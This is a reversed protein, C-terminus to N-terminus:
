YIIKQEVATTGDLAIHDYVSLGYQTGKKIICYEENKYLIEIRRFVAYGKNVNFVGELSQKKSIEFEEKTKDSRIKEGPEFLRGDIYGYEDDSCYIDAPVFVYDPEGNKKYTVKILGNSGSDGGVTFYDLPVQYFDKKVISSVPIKLGKASNVAIEVNIYRQNLYRIMFKNLDLKAFYDTGKKFVSISATTTLGDDSFTISVTDKDTLKEYHEKDLLLLINWNDSKIIKYVPSGKEILDMTRLQTKKYDETKFNDATAADISLNELDDVSYTIIGSSKSKMVKLASGTGKEELVTQLKALMNDNVIELVANQMDYKFNYVTQYKSDQYNRQFNAIDKKFKMTDESSLEVVDESNGILDYSDKNGDVSYITSNKSVRDGDGHYYNIYGATNTTVIEEDRFILGTFESDDSTSGEKVEYITLHDKTFYISVSIIVYIFIILFVLVGINFSKPKRYRAIKNGSKM